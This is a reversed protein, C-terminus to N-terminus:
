ENLNNNKINTLIAINYFFEKKKHIQQLFHHQTYIKDTAM